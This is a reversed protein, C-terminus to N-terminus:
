VTNFDLLCDREGIERLVNEGSATLGFGFPTTFKGFLSSLHGSVRSFICSKRMLTARSSFGLESWFDLPMSLTRYCSSLSGINLGRDFALFFFFRFEGYGCNFEFASVFMSESAHSFSAASLTMQSSVYFEWFEASLAM